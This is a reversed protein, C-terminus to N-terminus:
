CAAALFGQLPVAGGSYVRRAKVLGLCTWALAAFPGGAITSRSTLQNELSTPCFPQTRPLLLQCGADHGWHGLACEGAWTSAMSSLM